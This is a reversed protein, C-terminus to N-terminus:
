AIYSCPGFCMTKCTNVPGGGGKLELLDKAYLADVERRDLLSDITEKNLPRIKRVAIQSQDPNLNNNKM